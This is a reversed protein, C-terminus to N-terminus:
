EARLCKVPDTSAASVVQWAVAAIAILISLLGAFAFFLPSIEIQYAFNQLWKQMLYWSIPTGILMAILVLKLFDKSMLFALSQVSAGLIKRIGIEKTRQVATFSALGLLGLCAILIALASFFSFIAAFKQDGKYQANFSEDLFSYSFVNGPFMSTYIEQVTEITSHFDGPALRISINGGSKTHGFIINERKEHASSWNFDKMVGIVNVQYVGGTGMVLLHGISEQASAFGLSRAMSENILVDSILGSTGFAATKGDFGRGAVLEIGYLSNFNTDVYTAMGSVASSEDNEARWTSAGGWTFGKGPLAWSSAVHSVGPVMRLEEIMTLRRTALNTEEPVIRPGPIILVQEMDLGLDMRRMYNIQNYVVATGGILAIAASFQLIVLSKRLWLLSLFGGARGKLVSVPKFSSLVYAPYLGALLTSMIFIVVIASLFRRDAWLPLVNDIGWFTNAVPQFLETLILALIIAVFNIIASEMFFQAILQKRRAGLLKRIGVERARDISRATALNVYNVIAIILTLLGIVTYFYVTRYSGKQVAFTEVDANLYVDNLPQAHMKLTFGQTKIVDSRIEMVVENMKRNVTTVDAGPQLQIYTLFNNYSWGGEPEETYQTTKLLDEMPLLIDFQLHSNAPVDNFVASIRFSGKVQGTVYLIEGVVESKNFYRQATTESVMVTGHSLLASGSLLPFSFMELFPQDVYLVKDEEFINEPDSPSFIVPNDPTIRTFQHMEPISALFIPGMAQPTFVATGQESSSARGWEMNVRYIYQSNNHFRDYSYEFAVYKFIVFCCAMGLTLGAINIISYIKKRLISRLTTILYNLVMTQNKFIANFCNYNWLRCVMPM